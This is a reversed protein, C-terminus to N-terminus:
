SNTTYMGLYIDESSVINNDAEILVRMVTENRKVQKCYDKLRLRLRYPAQSSLYIPQPLVLWQDTGLVFGSVPLSYADFDVLKGSFHPGKPSTWAAIPRFGIRTVVSATDQNNLLTIDLVPDVTKEALVDPRKEIDLPWHQHSGIPWTQKPIGIPPGGFHWFEGAFNRIPAVVQMPKKMSNWHCVSDAIEIQNISLARQPDNYSLVSSLREPWDFFASTFLLSATAITIILSSWLLVLSATRIHPSKAKTLAAFVVLLTMLVIMVITGFVAIQYDVGFGKVIAIASVIGLVGLAYKLAPVAKIALQLVTWLSLHPSTGVAAKELPLHVDIVKNPQNQERAKSM